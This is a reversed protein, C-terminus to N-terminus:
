GDEPRGSLRDYASRASTTGLSEHYLSRLGLVHRIEEDFQHLTRLDGVRVPFRQGDANWFKQYGRDELKANVGRVNFLPPGAPAWRGDARRVLHETCNSKRVSVQGPDNGSEDIEFGADRFQKRIDATAARDDKM